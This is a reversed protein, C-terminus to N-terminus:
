IWGFGRMGDYALKVALIALITRFVRQFMAESVYGHLWRGNLTGLVTAIALPLLIDVRALASIGLTAFGAIKSAHGLSQCLALTGIVTEKRWEPRLFLRGIVLGTAGIFMGLSGNLIGAGLIALWTPMPVSDKREPLLSAGIMLAMMLSLVNPDAKAVWPAILFPTPLAGIMFWAAAKWEVNKLYALVRSSNSILQVAAHLPVAVAPALGVAYFIGILITGGGIGAIGSLTATLFSAVAIALASPIM